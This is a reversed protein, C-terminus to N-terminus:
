VPKKRGKGRRLEKAIRQMAETNPLYELVLDAIRAAGSGRVLSPPGTGRVVLIRDNEKSDADAWAAPRSKTAIFSTFQPISETKVWAHSCGRRQSWTVIFSVGRFNM